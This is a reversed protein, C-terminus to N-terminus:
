ERSELKHQQVMEAMSVASFTPTVQTKPPATAGWGPKGSRRNIWMTALGMETAPIIDHTVSQATHLVQEKAIGQTSLGDLLFNFNAVDPKYSGIEQATYVDDFAVELQRATCAFSAKDINSLIFLKFHEKLYRLSPVTDSFIPWRQVSDAFDEAMAKKPEIGFKLSVLEHTLGLVMRYNNGPQRRETEIEAAGYAELIENDNASAGCSELWPRLENLIGTEWDILTGYCDFSLAKYDGIRM